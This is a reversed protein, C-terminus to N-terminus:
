GNCSGPCACPMAPQYLAVPTPCVNGSRAENLALQALTALANSNATSGAGAGAGAGAVVDIYNRLSPQNNLTWNHQMNRDQLQSTALLDIAKQNSKAGQNAYVGGFIWAGVAALLGASAITIAAISTGSTRRNLKEAINVHEYSSMDSRRGGMLFASIEDQTM